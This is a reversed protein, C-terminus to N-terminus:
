QVLEADVGQMNCTPALDRGYVKLSCPYTVTIKATANQTLAAAATTCSFTSGGSASTTGSTSTIAISYSLNAPKLLPAATTVTKVLDACPDSTAGRSLAIMRAGSNTANTLIIYNNMAIGFTTIGTVVLLMLPLCLALEVASQGREDHRVLEKWRAAARRRARFRALISLKLRRFVTLEGIAVDRVIDSYM